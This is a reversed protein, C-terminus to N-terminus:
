QPAARNIRNVRVVICDSTRAGRADRRLRCARREVGCGAAVPHAIIAQKVTATAFDAAVAAFGLVVPFAVPRHRVAIAAAIMALTLALAAWLAPEQEATFYLIIGTGFAIALWPILRGPGVDALAWARLHQAAQGAWRVAGDPLAWEPRRGAASRPRWTEARGRSQHQNAM